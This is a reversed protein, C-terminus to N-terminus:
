AAEAALEFIGFNGKKEPRWAGIGVSFGALQFLNLLQEQSIVSANFTVPVTMSWDTFQPRYAVSAVLGRLVVPDCRMTPEPADIPILETLISIAGLLRVQQEETFRGGACALAKKIGAAPFGYVGPGMVHLAARFEAEPDRAERPAKTKMEQKAKIADIAAESFRNTLLPTLGVISVAMHQRNIPQITITKDAM